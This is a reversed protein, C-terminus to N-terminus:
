AQPQNKGVPQTRRRRKASQRKSQDPDRYYGDYYGGYYGRGYGNRKLPVKNFVVGILNAGARRLQEVAEVSTERRTRGPEIVVLIADVKSALVVSDTVAGVPPSDIIMIDVQKQLLDLIQSMRKSGLLETPNPPLGGSTIFTLNQMRWTRVVSDLVAIERVFLDTLGQRNHTDFFKHIMPRRLDADILMVRKGTQAIIVALNAAVTTKGVGPEACTVLLTRLPHDVAAFEINTRLLRFAEATPSRPERAVYPEGSSHDQIRAIFGIVPMNLLQNAEETTKITDDLYEILFVVGVALMAGVVAALLTNMLTRPRIPSQPAVAPEVQVVNSVTRAEEMRLQEYSQLLQTYNAQYSSLESKLREFELRGAESSPEGLEDISAELAEIQIELRTLQMHLNEKSTAYRSAQLAQNQESFVQVLTNALDAARWPNAHEVKVEILQTNLVMQVDITDKISEADEGDGLRQLTEELVPRQTLMEAYTRALRESMLLATYDSTQTDPAQNILLTTSAQYIPTQLNSTVFAAGAALLTALIILWAWRWLLSAYYKLEM